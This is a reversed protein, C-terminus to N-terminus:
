KARNQWSELALAAQVLKGGVLKVMSDDGVGNESFTKAEYMKTLAEIDNWDQFPPEFYKYWSWWTNPRGGMEVKENLISWIDANPEKPPKKYDEGNRIGILMARAVKSGSEMAVHYELLSSNKKYIFLKPYSKQWLNTMRDELAWSEDLNQSLFIKLTRMFENRLYNKVGDACSCIRFFYRLNDLDKLAFEQVIQLDGSYNM